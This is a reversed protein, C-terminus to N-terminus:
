KTLLYFIIQGFSIGADGRPIKKNLYFGQKEMIESIIKNNM